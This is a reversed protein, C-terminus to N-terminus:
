PLFHLFDLMLFVFQILILVGEESLVLFQLILMLHQLHLIVSVTLVRVEEVIEM